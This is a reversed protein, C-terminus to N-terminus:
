AGALFFGTQCFWNDAACAEYTATQWSNVWVARHSDAEETLHQKVAAPGGTNHLRTLRSKMTVLEAGAFQSFRAKLDFLKLHHNHRDIELPTWTAPPTVSFLVVPSRQGQPVVSASLWRAQQPTDFYPHISQEGAVAPYLEKKASQCDRCAPVLNLPAVAIVPYHTRPLHHDLTKAPQAGCLPCMGHRPANLLRDYIRRGPSKKDTLQNYLKKFAADSVSAIGTARPFTHLGSHTALSQYSADSAVVQPEAAILAAKTVKSRVRKACTLYTAGCVDTPRPLSRM